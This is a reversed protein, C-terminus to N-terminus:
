KLVHDECLVGQARRSDEEFNRAEDQPKKVHKLIVKFCLTQLVHGEWPGEKSGGQAM